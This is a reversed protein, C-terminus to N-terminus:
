EQSILLGTPMSDMEITKIKNSAINLIVLYSPSFFASSGYGRFLIVAYKGDSSVGISEVDGLKNDSISLKKAITYNDLDISVISAKEEDADWFATYVNKADPSVAMVKANLEVSKILRGQASDVALFFKKRPVTSYKYSLAFLRDDAPCAAMRSIGGLEESIRIEGTQKLKALDVVKVPSAERKDTDFILKGDGSLAWVSSAFSANVKKSSKIGMDDGFELATLKYNDDTSSGSCYFFLKNMEPVPVFGHANFGIDLTQDLELSKLDVIALRSKGKTGGEKSEYFLPIFLKDKNAMKFVGCAEWPEDEVLKLKKVIEAKAIDVKCVVPFSPFATIYVYGSGAEVGGACVFVSLGLVIIGALATKM